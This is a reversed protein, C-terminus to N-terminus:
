HKNAMCIDNAETSVVNIYKKCVVVVVV